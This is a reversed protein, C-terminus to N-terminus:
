GVRSGIKAPLPIVYEWYVEYNDTPQYLEGSWYANLRRDFEEISCMGSLLNMDGKHTKWNPIIEYIPSVNIQPLYKGRFHKAEDLTECAFISLFRSPKKPYRLQRVLELAYEIIAEPANERNHIHRNENLFYEVGHPATGLKFQTALDPSLTTLDLILPLLQFIENEKFYGRHDVGYCITM